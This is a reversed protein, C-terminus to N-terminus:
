SNSTGISGYIQLAAKCVPCNNMKDVEKGDNGYKNAKM